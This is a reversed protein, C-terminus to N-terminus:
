LDLSKKRFMVNYQRKSYCTLITIYTWLNKLTLVEGDHLICNTDASIVFFFFTIKFYKVHFIHRTSNFVYEHMTLPTTPPSFHLTSLLSPSYIRTSLCCPRFNVCVRFISELQIFTDTKYRSRLVSMEQSVNRTTSIM